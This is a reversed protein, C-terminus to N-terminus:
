HHVAARDRSHSLVHPVAPGGPDARAGLTYQPYYQRTLRLVFDTWDAYGM